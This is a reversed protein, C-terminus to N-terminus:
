NQFPVHVFKEFSIILRGLKEERGGENQQNMMDKSSNMQHPKCPIKSPQKTMTRM